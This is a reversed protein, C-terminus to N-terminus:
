VNSHSQNKRGDFEGLFRRTKEFHIFRNALINTTFILNIILSIYKIIYQIFAKNVYIRELFYDFFFFSFVM